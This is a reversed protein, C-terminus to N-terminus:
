RASKTRAMAQQVQRDLTEKLAIMRTEELVSEEKLFEELSQAL